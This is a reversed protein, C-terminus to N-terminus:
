PISEWVRDLFRDLGEMYRDAVMESRAELADLLFPQSGINHGPWGWHIPGAYPISKRGAAVSGIRQSGLARISGALAGSRSPALTSAYEAVPEAAERHISSLEKPLDKDVARLSKILERNGEVRIEM